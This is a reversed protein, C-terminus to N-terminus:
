VHPFPSVWPFQILKITIPGYDTGFVTAALDVYIWGSLYYFRADGHVVSVGFTVKVGDQLNGKVQGLQFSGIIPIKVSFTGDIEFTSKNAYGKLQ